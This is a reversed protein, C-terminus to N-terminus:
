VCMRMTKMKVIILVMQDHLFRLLKANTLHIVFFSGQVLISQSHQFNFHICLYRNNSLFDDLVRKFVGFIEHLIM